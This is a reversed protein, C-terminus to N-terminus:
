IDGSHIRDIFKSRITAFDIKGYAQKYLDEIVEADPKLGELRLNALADEVGKLRRKLESATYSM